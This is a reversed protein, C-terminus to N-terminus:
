EDGADPERAPEDVELPARDAPPAGALRPARGREDTPDSARLLSEIRETLGPRMGEDDITRLVETVRRIAEPDGDVWVRGNQGVTMRAGTHQLITEIMSGKRGVVRGVRAPSIRAITGGDLKGLGEGNMTVGIRGTPDLNEVQVVVADGVRLFKETEGVQVDWPTGTMHLPAWRPAGIDLLWFTGQVDTVTGIVVDGPQPIYRGSLPVVRILPPRPQLLGLVSAYVKGGM